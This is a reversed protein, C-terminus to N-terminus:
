CGAPVLGPVLRKPVLGKTMPGTRAGAGAGRTGALM